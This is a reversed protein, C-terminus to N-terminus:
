QAPFPWSWDLYRELTEDIVVDPQEREIVGFDWPRQWILVIRKFNYGLFPALASSFSDRFVVAKYKQDPNEIIVPQEEPAWRKPLVKPDVSIQPADTQKLPTLMVFERERLSQEQALMRALDGGASQSYAVAFDKLPLPDIGPLQRALTRIIEQYAAFAGLQNWHTDTTLYSPTRNRSELLAPRLDLIEVTSNTRMFALFQDLQTVAGPKNAWGPLYEPYISEKNPAAVFLYKIGRQALWDRRRELLDRWAKLQEASLPRLGMHSDMAYNAAYYLWQDRGILVDANGQKFLKREIHGHARILLKRFGFHDSYYADLGALYSKLGWIGSVLAPFRALERNEIPMPSHDLGFISDLLPMWLLLLFLGCFALSALRRSPRPGPLADDKRAQMPKASTAPSDASNGPEELESQFPKAM